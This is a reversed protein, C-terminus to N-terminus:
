SAARANQRALFRLRLIELSEQHIRRVTRVSVGLEAAIAQLTQPDGGGIGYHRRIVFARAFSLSELDAVLIPDPRPSEKPEPTHGLAVTPASRGVGGAPNIRGCSRSCEHRIVPVAYTAFRPNGHAAPDYRDAAQCLGVFAAAMLDDCGRGHVRCTLRSAVMKALAFNAQVLINRAVLDGQRIRAALAREDEATLRDM